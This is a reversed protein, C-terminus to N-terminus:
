ARSGRRVVGRTGGHGFRLMGLAHLRRGLPCDLPIRLYPEPIDAEAWANVFAMALPPPARHETVAARVHEIATVFTNLATYDQVAHRTRESLAPLERM